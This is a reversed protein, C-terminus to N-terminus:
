RKYVDMKVDSYPPIRSYWCSKEGSRYRLPNKWAFGLLNFGARQLNLTAAMSEARSEGRVHVFSVVEHDSYGLSGGTKM